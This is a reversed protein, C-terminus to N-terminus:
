VTRSSGGDSDIKGGAISLEHKTKNATSKIESIRRGTKQFLELM